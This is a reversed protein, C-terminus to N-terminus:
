KIMYLKLCLVYSNNQHDHAKLYDNLNLLQYMYSAHYLRQHDFIAISFGGRNSDSPVGTLLSHPIRFVTPKLVLKIVQIVQPEGMKPVM